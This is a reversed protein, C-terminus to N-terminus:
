FVVALNQSLPNRFSCKKENDKSRTLLEMYFANKRESFEIASHRCSEADEEVFLIKQWKCFQKEPKGFHWKDVLNKRRSMFWHADYAAQQSHIEYSYFQSSMHPDHFWHTCFTWKNGGRHLKERVKRIHKCVRVGALMEKGLGWSNTKKWANRLQLRTFCCSLSFLHTPPYATDLGRRADNWFPFVFFYDPNVGGSQHGQLSASIQITNGAILSTVKAWFHSANQSDCEEQGWKKGGKSPPFREQCADGLKQPEAAAM